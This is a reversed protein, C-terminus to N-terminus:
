GGGGLSPLLIRAIRIFAPGMITALLAPFVFLILPITLKVPIKAAMEEAKMYRKTRFTDSYVRLSQSVSTGLKDAQILLTVLSRVDELDTRMALDKLADRRTKGARLELNMLTFEDSLIKNDLELEKAVRNIAGDLGMGSEVCVVLLDLADPFGDRIKEKRRAIKLRLWANPLYFGALATLVLISVFVKSSIGLEFFGVRAFLFCAPLLVALVVKTGWFVAVANAWRIGGKLFMPRLESLDAAKKGAIRIGIRALLGQIGSQGVRKTELSSYTDLTGTTKGGEQIREITARKRARVRAYQLIGLCLLSISLFGVVAIIIPIYGEAMTM